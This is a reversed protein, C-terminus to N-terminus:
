YFAELLQGSMLVVTGPTQVQGGQEVLAEADGVSEWELWSHTGARGARGTGRRRRGVGVRAM